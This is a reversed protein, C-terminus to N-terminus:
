INKNKGYFIKGALLDKRYYCATAYVPDDHLCKREDSCTVYKECCGFHTYTFLDDIVQQIIPPLAPNDINDYFQELEIRFFDQESKISYTKFGTKEFAQKYINKFSIYPKKGRAQIRALLANQLSDRYFAGPSAVIISNFAGKNNNLSITIYNKYDPHSMGTFKHIFEQEINLGLM